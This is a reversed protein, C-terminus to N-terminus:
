EFPLRKSSASLSDDEPSATVVFDRERVHRAPRVGFLEFEFLFREIEVEGTMRKRFELLFHLAEDCVVDGMQAVQLM